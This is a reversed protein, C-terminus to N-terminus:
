QGAGLKYNTVLSLLHLFLSEVLYKFGWQSLAKRPYIIYSATVTLAWGPFLPHYM